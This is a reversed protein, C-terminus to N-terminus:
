WQNACECECECECEVNDDTMESTEKRKAENSMAVHCCPLVALVKMTYVFWLWVTSLTSTTSTWNMNATRSYRISKSLWESERERVWESVWGSVRVNPRTSDFRFRRLVFWASDCGWSSVSAWARWECECCTCMCEDVVEFCEDIWENLWENM